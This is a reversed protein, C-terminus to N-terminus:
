FDLPTELKEFANQTFFDFPKSKRTEWLNELFIMAIAPKSSFSPFNVAEPPRFILNQHNRFNKQRRLRFIKVFFASALPFILSKLVSKKLNEPELVEFGGRPTLLRYLPGLLTNLM